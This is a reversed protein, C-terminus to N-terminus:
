LKMFARLSKQGKMLSKVGQAAPNIGSAVLFQRLSRDHVPAIIKIAASLDSYLYNGGVGGSVGGEVSFTYAANPVTPSATWSGATATGDVEGQDMAQGNQTWSILYKDYSQSSQWKVTIRDPQTLTAPEADLENITPPVRQAGSAPAAEAVITQWVCYSDWHVGDTYEEPSEKSGNRPCLWIRYIYGAPVTFVSAYTPDPITLDVIDIVDGLGGPDTEGLNVAYVQVFDPRVGLVAFQAIITAKTATLPPQQKLGTFQIGFSM